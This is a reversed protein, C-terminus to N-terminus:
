LVGALLIMWGELGIAMFQVKGHGYPHDRDAPRNSLWISYLLMAAAALNIISELADSLVAASNTLAFIAFKLLTVAVGAILARMAVRRVEPADPRAQPEPM